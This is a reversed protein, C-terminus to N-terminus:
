RCRLCSADRRGDFFDRAQDETMDYGLQFWRHIQASAGLEPDWDNTAEPAPGSIFNDNKNVCHGSVPCVFFCGDDSVVSGDCAVDPRCIHVAGSTECLFAEARVNLRSFRCSSSCVHAPDPDVPITVGRRRSLDARCCRVAVELDLEAASPGPITAALKENDLAADFDLWDEELADEGRHAEAWRSRFLACWPTSAHTSSKADRRRAYRPWTVQFYVQWLTDEAQLAQWPKCLGAGAHVFEQWHLFSAVCLRVEVPWHVLGHGIASQSGSTAHVLAATAQRKPPRDAADDLSSELAALLEEEDDDSDPTPSM